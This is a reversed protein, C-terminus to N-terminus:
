RSTWQRGESSVRLSEEGAVTIRFGANERRSADTKKEDPTPARYM